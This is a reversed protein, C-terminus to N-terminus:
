KGIGTALVISEATDTSAPRLVVQARYGETLKARGPGVGNYVVKTEGTIKVEVRQGEKGKKKPPLELTLSKGEASVAVVKGALSKKKKPMGTFRIKAATDRSDPQLWVQALYGQAPQAGGPVVNYYVTETQDNVKVDIRRREKPPKEGKKKPPLIELTFGKGDAALAVVMGISQQGSPTLKGGADKKQKVEKGGNFQVAEATDKSGKAFWVNALYNESVKAGDKGVNSFTLATRKTFRIPIKKPEKKQGKIKKAPLALTIGKGKPSVAAVPGSVDPPKKPVEKGRFHVRAATHESGDQLWVVAEYGKTLKAEDPGVAFYVIETQAAVTVFFQEPKAGKRPLFALTLQKGDASFEVVQATFSPAGADTKSTKGKAPDVLKSPKKGKPSGAKESDKSPGAKEALLRQACLGTGLGAVGVALFLVAAIKLKALLMTKLVGDALAAVKTSIVGAAVTKGATMLAAAKVTSAVLPAPVSAAATNQAVLAALAAASLALGHRTLRRALMTRARALRGSLTGEPWGLQRAVEKRSKGQLDCLVVPLRYKDPLRNLEQDLVPQLDQWGETPPPDHKPMNKVQSEKVRRKAATSKAKLATRYAVGYLWNGVYERPAISAAKRLFVLFTAQFADEADHANQLVRRCVGLVMPGHRQVLAEFAAEEHSTLFYQLLQGDSMSGVNQLLTTRRLHDFFSSMQSAAM